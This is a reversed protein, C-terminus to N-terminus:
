KSHQFITGKIIKGEKKIRYFLIAGITLLFIGTFVSGEIGVAGGTILAPGEFKSQIITGMDDLGTLNSGYFPQAFNWGLHFFFPLWIRKTYIFLLAMTFGWALDTFFGFLTSNDNFVHTTELLMAIFLTLYTGLWKELVRIILGRTLLDEIFAAVLLLTFLKLSYHSASISIIKYCGLLYLVFISISITLFGLAFGGLMEKPLYKASLEEPTKREYYKSFLYYSVLLIVFGICNKITDALIKSDILRYLIPQSIYNKVLIMTGMCITIGAIIKIIPFQLFRKLSTNM